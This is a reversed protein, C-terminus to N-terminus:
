EDDSPDGQRASDSSRGPILPDRRVAKRLLSKMIEERLIPTPEQEGATAWQTVVATIQGIDCCDHCTRAIVETVVDASLKRQAAAELWGCCVNRAQSTHDPDRLAAHLGEALLDMRENGPSSQPVLDAANDNALALFADIGCAAAPSKFGTWDVIARLMFARLNPELALATLSSVVEVHVAPGGNVALHRLRTLANGPFKRGFAGGCVEALTLQLAPETTKSTAWSYMTGRVARGISESVAAKTLTDPALKRKSQELTVWNTLARTILTADGQRVALDVLTEGVVPAQSVDLSSPLNVLWGKLDTRLHPRDQWVYDLVSVPYAPRPLRVRGDDTLTAGILDLLRGTGEGVLGGGPLRPFEVADCLRGAAKFVAPADAENLVAAAILLARRYGDGNNQFWSDLQTKWDRFADLAEPVPDSGSETSMAECVLRALRVADAPSASGLADIVESRMAVRDGEGAHEYDLHSRFVDLAVSQELDVQVLSTGQGLRRWAGTTAMVVLYSGAEALRQHYGDILPVLGKVDDVTQEVVDLLYGSRPEAPFDRRVDGPDLYIPHHPTAGLETIAGWGTTRRGSGLAGVLAVAKGAHLHGMTSNVAATRVCVNELREVDQQTLKVASVVERATYDFYNEVNTQPGNYSVYTRASQEATSV